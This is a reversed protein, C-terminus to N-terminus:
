ELDFFKVLGDCRRLPRGHRLDVLDMDVLVIIGGTVKFSPLFSEM